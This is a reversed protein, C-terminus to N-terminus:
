FFLGEWIQIVRHTSQVPVFFMNQLLFNKTSFMTSKIYTKYTIM